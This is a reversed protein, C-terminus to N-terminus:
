LKTSKSINLIIGVEALALALATGGHSVFTLQLGTLPVLGVMAAINAYAQVVILIVVGAGLLRGFQDPARSSIKMGRYTFLMFLSILIITGLFGFEEAFVAFISDGIPQPLYEFKQLSFGLGRGTLGGSGIAIKSQQLQYGIGQTDASPNFFVSIRQRAHPKLFYVSSLFVLGILIFLGLYRKRGGSLLYLFIGTGALVGLTGLDPEFYLLGAPIVLFTLFTLFGKVLKGAEVKRTAFWASFFVVFGFKLVESPQFFILGFKIWRKAGGYEFGVHPVFVLATLILSFIFIPISFKKWLKYPIRSTVNLLIFGLLLGLLIQRSIIDYFSVGNRTILGLSASTLIFLGGLVLSATIFFFVKDPKARTM